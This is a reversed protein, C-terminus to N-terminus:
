PRAGRLRRNEAELEAIRNELRQLAQAVEAADLKQPLHKPCNVDWASVTILVVQEPRARYEAPALQALLEDTAPVTRATGWVKVRRQRAYDILFLCVRNNESLNGTSIYQRNGVFDVFGLTHSDLGRIFGRPGGRHQIYPQGEASATALFGTDIQALFARLSETVETEFGGDREMRSYAARSGRESQVQKVAPSFAVDSSPPNM